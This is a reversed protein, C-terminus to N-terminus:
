AAKGIKGTAHLTRITTVGDTIATVVKMLTTVGETIAIVGWNKLAQTSSTHADTHNISSPHLSDVSALYMFHTRALALVDSRNAPTYPYCALMLSRNIQHLSIRPSLFVSSM